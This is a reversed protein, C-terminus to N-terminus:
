NIKSILQKNTKRILYRLNKKLIPHTWNPNIELIPLLVFKRKHSRPHPITLILSKKVRNSFDILDIDICRSFNKKQRVRGLKKEVLNLIKLIKKENIKTTCEIVSNYYNPQKSKPIPASIYFSSIKIIKIPYKGIEKIAKKCTEIPHLDEPNKINAGLAIILKYDRM